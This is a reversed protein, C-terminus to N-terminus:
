PLAHMIGDLPMIRNCCWLGVWSDQEKLRYVKGDRITVCDGDYLSEGPLAGTREYERYAHEDWHKDQLWRPLMWNEAYRMHRAAQDPNM